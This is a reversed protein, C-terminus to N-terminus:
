TSLYLGVIVIFQLEIAVPRLALALELALGSKSVRVMFLIYKAM